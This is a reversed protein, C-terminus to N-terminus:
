KLLWFYRSAGTGRAHPVDSTMPPRPAHNVTPRPRVRSVREIGPLPIEYEASVCEVAVVFGAAGLREGDVVGITGVAILRRLVIWGRPFREWGICQKTVFDFEDAPEVFRAGAVLDITPTGVAVPVTGPMCTTPSKLTV